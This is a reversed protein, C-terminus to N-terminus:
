RGSESVSILNASPVVWSSSSYSMQYYSWCSVRKYYDVAETENECQPYLENLDPFLCQVQFPLCSINLSPVKEKVREMICQQLQDATIPECEGNSRTITNSLYILTDSAVILSPQIMVFLQTLLSFYEADEELLFVHYSRDMPMSFAPIFWFFTDFNCRLRLSSVLTFKVQM